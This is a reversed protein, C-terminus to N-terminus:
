GLSGDSANLCYVKGDCAGFVVAGESFTPPTDIRGGATFSWIESGKAADLAHITHQDSATAFLKGDAVIPQLLKCSTFKRDWAINLDAPLGFRPRVIDERLRPLGSVDTALPASPVEVM